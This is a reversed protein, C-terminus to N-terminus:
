SLSLPCVPSTHNRYANEVPSLPFCLKCHMQDGRASGSRLKRVEARHWNEQPDQTSPIAWTCKAHPLPFAVCGASPHHPFLGSEHASLLLHSSILHPGPCFPVDTICYRPTVALLPQLVSFHCPNPASCFHARLLFFVSQSAFLRAQLFIHSEGLRGSLMQWIIQPWLM